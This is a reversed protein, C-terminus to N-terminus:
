VRGEKRALVWELLQEDFLGPDVGPIRARIRRGLTGALQMRANPPLAVRRELYRRIVFVEDASVGGVDWTLDPPPPTTMYAANVRGEAQFRERVVLTGAALDGLRQCHRTTFAAIFGVPFLVVTLILWGDVLRLVNRILSGSVGIPNGDAKIVRIGAAAKGPTRGQNFVEFLIPYGFLLLFVLAILIATVYGNHIGATSFTQTVVILAFMQIAVDLLGALFRSGIGAVVLELAVGEPTTIKLRDDLEVSLRYVIVTHITLEEDTFALRPPQFEIGEECAPPCQALIGVANPADRLQIPGGGGVQRDRASPKRTFRDDVLESAAHNRGSLPQRAEIARPRPHEVEDRGPVPASDAFPRAQQQDRKQEEHDRPHQRRDPRRM